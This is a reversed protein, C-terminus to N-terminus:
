IQYRTNEKAVAVFELSNAIRSPMYRAPMARPAAIAPRMHQLSRSRAACRRIAPSRITSPFRTANATAGIAEYKMLAVRPGLKAINSTEIPENSSPVINGRIQWRVMLGSALAPLPILLSYKLLMMPEVSPLKAIPYTSISKRDVACTEISRTIPPVRTPTVSRAQFSRLWDFGANATLKTETMKIITTQCEYGWM